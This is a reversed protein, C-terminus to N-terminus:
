ANKGRKFMTLGAAILTLILSFIEFAFVHRVFIGKSFIKIGYVSNMSTDSIINFSEPIIAYSTLVLYIVALAFLTGVLLLSSSKDLSKKKNFNTGTFMIALGIIVPVAFGYIAFQIVANFESGIIFFLVSTMFFVIMACLLSHLINKLKLTLVAFILLIVSTLYFIIQEHM